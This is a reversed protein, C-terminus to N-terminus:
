AGQRSNLAPWQEDHLFVNQPTGGGGRPLPCGGGTVGFDGELAQFQSQACIIAGQHYHNIVIVVYYYQLWM